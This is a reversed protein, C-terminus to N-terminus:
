ITHAREEDMKVAESMVWSILIVVAGIILISFDLVGFQAVIVREGAPNGFSLVLSIATVFAMNAFVWVILTYGLHRFCNVNKASFVVGKEYLSFLKKLTLLGYIAVVLPVLSVLLAFVITTLSLEHTMVIPLALTFGSPLYNFLLWFLVTLIPAAYILATFLVRLRASVRQIRFLNQNEMM